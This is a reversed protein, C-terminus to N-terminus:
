AENVNNITITFVKDYNLGGQDTTRVRISYSSKTEFDPSALDSSRRTPIYFATSDTDGTGAVLIYTFTNGTDPDASDLTGITTNAAVNENISSASLTIDTPAENVNNITITFVKDYNLGGQDTTRVRISYSSKTEFDPSA